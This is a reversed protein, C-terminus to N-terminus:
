GKTKENYWVAFEEVKQNLYENEELNDCKIKRWKLLYDANNWLIPDNRKEEDNAPMLGHKEVAWGHEPTHYQSIHVM